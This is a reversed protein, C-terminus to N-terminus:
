NHIKNGIYQKLKEANNYNEMYKDKSVLSIISKDKSIKNLVYFENININEPYNSSLFIAANNKNVSPNTFLDVLEDILYKNMHNEIDDIFLYGGFRLIEISNLTIKLSKITKSSLLNKLFRENKSLYVRDDGKFKLIINDNEKKIYDISSDLLELLSTDIHDIAELFDIDNNNTIQKIPLTTDKTILAVISDDDKLFVGINEDLSDRIVKSNNKNLRTNIFKELDEKSKIKEKEISRLYENKYILKTKKNKNCVKEIESSIKHYKNKYYFVVSYSFNDSSSILSVQNENLGKGNIIIELIFKMIKLVSSKGTAVLGTFLVVPKTKPNNQDLDDHYFNINIKNKFIPVGELQMNLIKINEM